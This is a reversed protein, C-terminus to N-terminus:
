KKEHAESHGERGPMDVTQGGTTVPKQAEGPKGQHGERGPMDVTHGPESGVPKGKAKKKKGKEHDSSHGERGPMDVTHGPSTVEKKQGDTQAQALPASLTGALGALLVIATRNVLTKM